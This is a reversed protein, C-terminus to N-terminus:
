EAVSGLLLHQIVGRGHTGMVILDLQHVRAYQIVCVFPAGIESATEVALTERDDALLLDGRRASAEVVWRRQM